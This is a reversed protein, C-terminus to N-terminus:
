DTSFRLLLARARAILANHEGFCAPGRALVARCLDIAQHRAERVTCAEEEEEDDTVKHLAAPGRDSAYPTEPYSAIRHNGKPPSISTPAVAVVPYSSTSFPSRGKPTTPVSKPSM